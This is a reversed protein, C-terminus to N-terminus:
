YEYRGRISPDLPVLWGFWWYGGTNTPGVIGHPDGYTPDHVIKGKHCVVIHNEGSKSLATLTFYGDSDYYSIYELAKELTDGTFPIELHKLGFQRLWVRCAEAGKEGGEKMPYDFFHPVKEVKMELLSAIVARHCDGIQGKEPHHKFLSDVPKM